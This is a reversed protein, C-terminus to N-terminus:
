QAKKLLAVNVVDPKWRHLFTMYALVAYLSIMGVWLLTRVLDDIGERANALAARGAATLQGAAEIERLRELLGSHTQEAGLMVAMLLALIMGVFAFAGVRALFMADGVFYNLAVIYASVVTFILSVGLLVLSMYEVLQEVVEGESM